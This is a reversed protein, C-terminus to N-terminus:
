LAHYFNKKFNIILKKLEALLKDISKSKFCSNVDKKYWMKIYCKLNLKFFTYGISADKANNYIFKIM